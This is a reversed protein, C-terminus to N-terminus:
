SLRRNNRARLQPARTIAAIKTVLSALSALDTAAFEFRELAKKVAKVQLYTTGETVGRRQAIEKVSLGAGLAALVEAEVPSMDFAGMLVSAIERGDEGARAAALVATGPMAGPSVALILPDKGGRRIPVHASPIAGNAVHELAQRLVLDDCGDLAMLSGDSALTLGDAAELMEAFSANRHIPAGDGDVLAVALGLNDLASQLGRVERQVRVAWLIGLGADREGFYRDIGSAKMNIRAQINTGDELRLHSVLMRGWPYNNVFDLNPSSHRAAITDALWKAPDAKAGKNGTIGIRHAGWFFSAYTDDHGYSCCPMVRRQEQNAGLIRDDRDFM